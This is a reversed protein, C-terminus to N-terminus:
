QYVNEAQINFTVPNFALQIGINESPFRGLIKM